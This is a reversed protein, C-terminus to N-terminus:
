MIRANSSFTEEDQNGRSYIFDSLMEYVNQDIRECSVFM